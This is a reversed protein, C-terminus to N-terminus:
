PVNEILLENFLGHVLGRDGFCMQLILLLPKKGHYQDWGLHM